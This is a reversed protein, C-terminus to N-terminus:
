WATKLGLRDVQTNLLPTGEPVPIQRPFSAHGAFRVSTQKGLRVVRQDFDVGSPSIHVGSGVTNDLRVLLRAPPRTFDAISDLPVEYRLRLSLSSNPLRFSKQLKVIQAPLLKITLWDQVRLRVHPVFGGEDLDLSAGAGLSVMPPKMPQVGWVRFAPQEKFAGAVKGLVGTDKSEASTNQFPDLVASGYPSQQSGSPTRQRSQDIERSRGFDICRLLKIRAGRAQGFKLISSESSAFAGGSRGAGYVSSGGGFNSQHMRSYASGGGGGSRLGWRSVAPYGVVGQGEGARFLSSESVAPLRPRVLDVRAIGRTRQAMRRIMWEYVPRSEGGYYTPSAANANAEVAAQQAQDHALKQQAEQQAAREQPTAQYPLKNDEPKYAPRTTSQATGM